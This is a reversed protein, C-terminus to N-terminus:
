CPKDSSRSSYWPSIFLQYDPNTGKVVALWWTGWFSYPTCHPPPPLPLFSLRLLPARSACVGSGRVGGGGVGGCLRGPERQMSSMQSAAWVLGGASVGRLALRALFSSVPRAHAFACACLCVHQVCCAWMCVWDCVTAHVHVCVCVRDFWVCIPATKGKKKFFRLIGLSSLRLVCVCACCTSSAEGTRATAPVM